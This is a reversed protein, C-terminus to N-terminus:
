QAVVCSRLLDISEANTAVGWEVIGAEDFPVMARHHPEDLQIASLMTWFYPRRTPPRNYESQRKNRKEQHPMRKGYEKKKRKKNKNAIHSAIQADSAKNGQEEVM